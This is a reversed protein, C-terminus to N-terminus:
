DILNNTSQGYKRRLHSTDQNALWQEHTLFQVTYYYSTVKNERTCKITLRPQVYTVVTNNEKTNEKLFRQSLDTVARALAESTHDECLASSLSNVLCEIPEPNVSLDTAADLYFYAKRSTSTSASVGLDIDIDAAIVMHSGLIFTALSLRIYKKM